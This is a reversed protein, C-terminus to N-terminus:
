ARLPGGSTPSSERVAAEAEIEVKAGAELLAAVEVLTMAPFHRDMLRRYGRGIEETAALYESRDTIHIRLRYIDRPTGGAAVVVAIVNALAQEFQGPLGDTVLEGEEDWGIQGSVALLRRDGPVLVGHSYGRPEVLEPVEVPDVGRGSRDDPRNM